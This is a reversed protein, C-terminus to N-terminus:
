APPLNAVLVDAFRQLVTGTDFAAGAEQEARRGLGTWTGDAVATAIRTVMEDVSACIWEAGYVTAAGPWNRVVPVAGSAMGEAPALHFSEDDSTSLVWGIRRLWGGIDAGYSDFVVGDALLPTVRVRRLAQEYATREEEERWVHPVEWAHRTKVFLTFRADQVRLRELVDLALDLRKRRPV